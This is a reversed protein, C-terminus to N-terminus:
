KQKKSIRKVSAWEMDKQANEQRRRQYVVDREQIYAAWDPCNVACGPTRKPCDSRSSEKYCPNKM